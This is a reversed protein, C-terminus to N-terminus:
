GQLVGAVGKYCEQLVRTIGKYCKQLVSTVSKCCEQLVRLIAEGPHRNAADRSSPRQTAVLDPMVYCLIVRRLM